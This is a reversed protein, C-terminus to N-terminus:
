LTSGKKLEVEKEEEIIFSGFQSDNSSLVVPAAPEGTLETLLEQLRPSHEGKEAGVGAEAGM